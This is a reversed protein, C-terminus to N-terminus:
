LVKLQQAQMLMDALAKAVGARANDASLGGLPSLVSYSHIQSLLIDYAKQFKSFNAQSVKGQRTSDVIREYIYLMIEKVKLDADKASAQIAQAAEQAKVAPPSIVVPAIAPAVAPIPPPLAQPYCGGLIFLLLLALRKLM